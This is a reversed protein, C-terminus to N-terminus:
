EMRRMVLYIAIMAVLFLVFLIRLGEADSGVYINSNSLPETVAHVEEESHHSIAQHSIFEDM